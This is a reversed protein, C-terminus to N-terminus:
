FTLSSPSISEKMKDFQNLMTHLILSITVGGNSMIHPHHDWDLVVVLRGHCVMVLGDTVRGDSWPLANKTKKPLFFVLDWSNSLFYFVFLEGMGRNM